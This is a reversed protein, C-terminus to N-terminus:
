QRVHSGYSWRAGQCQTANNGREIVKASTQTSLSSSAEAIYYGRGESVGSLGVDLV